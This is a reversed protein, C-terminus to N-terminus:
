PARENLEALLADLEARSAIGSVAQLFAGVSGTRERLTAVKEGLPDLSAPDGAYISRFAFFAQNIKRFVVGQDALEQRRQEMLAEADEIEGLALLSEVDLRLRRLVYGVDVPPEQPSLASLQSTVDAPLSNRQVFLSALELGALDAVTENLTQHELDTYARRGLPKFFLYHHVWEHAVTDVLWEYDGRPAVISPYTAAGAVAEALASRSGDREAEKEL